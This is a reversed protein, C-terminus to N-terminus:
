PCSKLHTGELIKVRRQSSVSEESGGRGGGPTHVRSNSGWRDRDTLWEVTRAALSEIVEEHTRGTRKPVRFSHDAEEVSEVTVTPLPRLWQAVLEPRAMADRTGVFFLMPVDIAALHGTRLQEPKGVPHLPYAYVVVGACPEGEAALLTAIRGGMSRGALVLDEDVHSRFWAAAARHCEMLAPQRDPRKRGADAYPYNFTLVPLGRAALADRLRVMAPHDQDVGAGHALLVGPSLAADPTVLRGSVSGEHWPIAVTRM